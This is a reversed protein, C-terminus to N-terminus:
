CVSFSKLAEIGADKISFCDFEEKPAVSMHHSEVTFNGPAQKLICQYFQYATQPLANCTVLLSNGSTTVHGTLQFGSALESIASTFGAEKMRGNIHIHYTFM